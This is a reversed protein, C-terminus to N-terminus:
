ENLLVEIENVQSNISNVLNEIFIDLMICTTEYEQIYKM